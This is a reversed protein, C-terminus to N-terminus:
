SASPPSVLNAVVALQHVCVVPSAPFSADIRTPNSQNFAATFGSKFADAGDYLDQADWDRARAYMADAVSQATITRPTRPVGVQKASLDGFLSALYQALDSRWFAIQDITSFDRLPMYASSSTTTAKEIVATGTPDDARVPCLYYSGMAGNIVDSIPRSAPAPIVLPSQVSGLLTFGDWNQAPYDNAARAAAIRAAVEYAQVGFDQAWVMAYRPSTTLAPSTGVPITGLVSAPWPAGAHVRQEKQYVGNAYLEVYTAITGLTGTDPIAQTGVFPCVWYGFGGQAPLNSLANTLTPQGAGVTGTTPTVTVVTSTVISATVRRVDRGPAYFLNVTASTAGIAATIPYSGANIGNVVKTAVQAATDSNAIAILITTGCVVIEVSGSTTVANAFLLSGNSAQIGTGTGNVRVRIPCDEGVDGKHPYTVTVTNSSAVATGPADDLANIAAALATAITSPTDGLSFGVSVIARGDISCDISGNALADAAAVISILYTSATGGSPELLPLVFCDISGPGAQAMAARFARRVDSKLGCANIVDQESLVQLATDPAATGDSSKYGMILLRNDIDDVGGGPAALNVAVYVGPRQNGLSLDPNTAQFSM